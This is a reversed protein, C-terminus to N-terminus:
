LPALHKEAWAIFDERPLAKSYLWGQGYQVGHQYLWDRQNETEIGEAVMALKLAKAMEVIHTTMNKYELADVFSKDIKIIDVDLNQLYSLSSYGTGFDDIYIAHGASRLASLTPRTATPDAFGRETVELAIQSASLQWHMLLQKIQDPVAPTLLDGPELNISVHQTPHAKLWCGMDEFVKEIILTTLQPMLGTQEALPIFTDPSLFSGNGQRWRVLAEAGVINGNDLSVIPQYFMEIERARIADLLRAGPSQLRRLIRILFYALALSLLLGVPLWFVLLRLWSTELPALSAWTIIAIGMQPVPTINWAANHAKLQVPHLANLERLIEAGPATSSSAIVRRTNIGILAINIPWSGSPIVDIFSQPDTMIIHRQTGVAVMYQNLGLDNHSTLWARYGDDTIREPPPFATAESGSELSSCQSMSQNLYIVEQVYRFSYSVRRMMLLHEPSCPVGHFSDLHRLAEKGQNAVKEARMKVLRSFTDLENMFAEEAQRHSLWISLAVPVLVAFLLVGTILSVLRRNTM